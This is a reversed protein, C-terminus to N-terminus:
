SAQSLSRMGRMRQHMRSSNNRSAFSKGQHDDAVSITLVRIPERGREGIAQSTHPRVAQPSSGAGGVPMGGPLLLPVKGRVLDAILHNTGPSTDPGAGYIGSPHLFVADLGRELAATVLRDASQKSREYATAKPQPDLESEDFSNGPAPFVFVDITSTYVFREVGCELAAEVLNRTGGVNVREFTADDALWQEPLGAAHVVVRCGRMATTVSAKDTVDGAVLECEAPVVSAAKHPSRVLARVSRRQEVLARAIANGLLGTAGTLLVEPM